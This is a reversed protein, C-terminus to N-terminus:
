GLTAQLAPPTDILLDSKTNFAQPVTLIVIAALAALTMRKALM